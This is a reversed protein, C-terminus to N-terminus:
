VLLRWEALLDDVSQRKLRLRAALYGLRERAQADPEGRELTALEAEGLALEHEIHALIRTGAEHSNM